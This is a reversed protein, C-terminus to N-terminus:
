ALAEVLQAVKRSHWSAARLMGRSLNAYAPPTHTRDWDILANLHLNALSLHHEAQDKRGDLAADWAGTRSAIHNAAALQVAIDERYASGLGDPMLPLHAVAANMAETADALQRAKATLASRPTDSFDLVDHRAIRELEGLDLLQRYAADFALFLDFFASADSGFSAECFHRLDTELSPSEDWACRAFWWAHWNPGYWPRPTVALNGFDSVGAAGYARADAPLVHLNTPAMWKYLIADSYYEFVALRPQQGEFTRALGTLEEYHGTRNRSCGADDIAFAYNRNRPAYLGSVNPAPALARPPAITDHYALHAVTAAQDVDALVEALVNTARLAQDSPTLAACAGCGCWGGGVIDDAWLHYVSAGAFRQFFERARARVEAMGDPSSTCLNYRADRAGDRFPFWDPHEAFHERRLLGPLHHGGFQITLGRRRCEERIAPGDADWREFLWGKGDAAVLDESLPRRADGRDFVSPPTDHFFVSNYRNRSAFDIWERWDDHLADNGLILTRRPFAPSSRHAGEPLQRSVFRAGEVGPRVWLWGLRELFWYVGNLVGRPSDGAIVLGDARATVEFGDATGAGSQLRIPLSGGSFRELCTRLEAAAFSVVADHEVFSILDGAFDSASLGV